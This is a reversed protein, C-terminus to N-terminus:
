DMHFHNQDIVIERTKNSDKFYVTCKYFTHHLVAEGILPVFRKEDKSEAIKETEIRSYPENGFAYRGNTSLAKHTAQLAEDYDLQPIDHSQGATVPGLVPVVEFILKHNARSLEKVKDSTITPSAPKVFVIDKQKLWLEDAQTAEKGLKASDLIFRSFIHGPADNLERLIIVEFLTGAESAPGHIGGAAAILRAVNTSKDLEYRDPNKVAGGLNVFGNGDASPKDFTASTGGKPPDVVSCKVLITLVGVEGDVKTPRCIVHTKGVRAETSRQLESDPYTDLFEKFTDAAEEIKGQEYLSRVLQTTQVRMAALVRKGHGGTDNWSRKAGTGAAFQVTCTDPAVYKTRLSISDIETLTPTLELNTEQLLPEEDAESAVQFSMTVTQGSRGTVRPATVCRIDKRKLIADVQEDDLSYSVPRAFEFALGLESNTADLAAKMREDVSPRVVAIEKGDVFIGVGNPNIRTSAGSDQWSASVERFEDKKFRIVKVECSVQKKCIERLFQLKTKVSDIEEPTNSVVLEGNFIQPSPLTFSTKGIGGWDSDIIIRNYLSNDVVQKPLQTLIWKLSEPESMGQDKLASILDRVDERFYGQFIAGTDSVAKPSPAIDQAPQRSDSKKGDQAVGVSGGPLAIACGVLMAAWIWRPARKHSGQGLKMIREMRDLTVEIPRVGPLAPAIQLQHKRELVDLLSRAYAAPSCDLSAVTEEDCSRETERSVMQGALRVLPHFWWLSTAVAQLMSWWLDGRRIHILEHAILPELEALKRGRVILEPLLLKPRMLGLVVPGIPNRVLRVSVHQKVGLRKSLRRVYDDVELDSYYGNSYASKLFYMLRLCTLLIGAVFGVALVGIGFAIVNEPTKLFPLWGQLKSQNPLQESAKSETESSLQNGENVVVSIQLNSSEPKSESEVRGEDKPIPLLAIPSSALTGSSFKFASLNFLSTPSSWVPPIVCKILVLIWLAHALHPRNKAFLKAICWVLSALLTLQIAHNLFAFALDHVDM